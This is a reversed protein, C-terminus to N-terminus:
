GVTNINIENYGTKKIVEKLQEETYKGPKQVETDIAKIIQYLLIKIAIANGLKRSGNGAADSLLKEKIGIAEKIQKASAGTIKSFAEGVDSRDVDLFLQKDKLYGALIAIQLQFIVEPRLRKIAEREQRRLSM